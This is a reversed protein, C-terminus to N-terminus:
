AAKDLQLAVFRKRGRESQIHLVVSQKKDARAAAVADALAQADDVPMADVRLIVDGPRMGKKAAESGDEVAVVVPGDSGDRLAIGLKPADDAKAPMAAHREVPMEGLRVTRTLAEGDRVIDVEVQSDPDQDAVLRTLDRVTEIPKGAVAVIVDGAKLGGKEAPADANVEAVLAGKAEQLNLGKALDKTVPQIAVGLWGREVKGNEKLEAIVESAINAPIAFGIGVNGGTPSLIATNVGIVEGQLNFAPGGSNGRNIPADIQLFDDYPGAGIDRGRASLIGATTTGGLGFPNGVAVVWQGVNAQDSDGFAVYSYGEGEAKLLALDTKEDIGVVTASVKAGDHLMLTIKGARSTVHANTVVYGDASIFFGSGQGQAKHRPMKPVVGGRSDGGFDRRFREYFEYFPHNKDLQPANQRAGAKDSDPEVLVSVVAPRVTQVVQSFDAPSKAYPVSVPAAVMPTAVAALGGTLMTGALLGVVFSRPTPKILKVHM